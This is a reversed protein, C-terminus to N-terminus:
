QHSRRSEFGCDGAGGLGARRLQRALCNPGLSRRMSKVGAADVTGGRECKRSCVRGRSQALLGLLKKAEVRVSARVHEDRVRLMLCPCFRAAWFTRCFLGIDIGRRAYWEHPDKARRVQSLCKPCHPVAWRRSLPNRLHYVEIGRNDPCTLCPM